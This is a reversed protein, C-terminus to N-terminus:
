AHFDLPVQKITAEQALTRTPAPSGRALACPKPSSGTASCKTRAGTRCGCEEQWSRESELRRRAPPLRARSARHASARPGRPRDRDGPSRDGPSHEAAQGEPRRCRGKTRPHPAESRRPQSAPLRLGTAQHAAALLPIALKRAVAVIAIQAGRRASVSTSRGRLPRPTKIAAWAAEVLVHRAASSGQKSIRRHGPPRLAPSAAQPPGAWLHGVLRDATAFRQVDGVTAM